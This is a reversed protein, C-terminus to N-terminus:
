YCTGPWQNEDVVMNKPRPPSPTDGWCLTGVWTADGHPCDLPQDALYCKGDERVPWTAHATNWCYGRSSEGVRLPAYERCHRPMTQDLKWNKLLWAVEDVCTDDSAAPLAHRVTGDPMVASCAGVSLGVGTKPDADVLVPRPNEVGHDDTSRTCGVVMIGILFLIVYRMTGAGAPLHPCWRLAPSASKAPVM